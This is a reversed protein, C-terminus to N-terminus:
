RRTWIALHATGPVSVTTFVLYHQGAAEPPLAPKSTELLDELVRSNM